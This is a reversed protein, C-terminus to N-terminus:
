NNLKSGIKNQWFVSRQIPKRSNSCLERNVYCFKQNLPASEKPALEGREGSQFYKNQLEVLSFYGTWHEPDQYIPHLIRSIPTYLNWLVDQVTPSSYTISMVHTYQSRTQVCKSFYKIPLIPKFTLICDSRCSESIWRKWRKRKFDSHEWFNITQAGAFWAASPTPSTSTDAQFFDARATRKKHLRPWFGASETPLYGKARIVRPDLDERPRHWRFHRCLTAPWSFQLRTSIM